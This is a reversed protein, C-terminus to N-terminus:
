RVVRSKVVLECDENVLVSELMDLAESSNCVTFKSKTRDYTFHTGVVFYMCGKLNPNADTIYVHPEVDEVRWYLRDVLPLLVHVLTYRGPFMVTYKTGNKNIIPEISFLKLVVRCEVTDFCLVTSIIATDTTCQSEVILEIM